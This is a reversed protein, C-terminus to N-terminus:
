LEQLTCIYKFTNQPFTFSTHNTALCTWVTLNIWVAATNASSCVSAPSWAVATSSFHKMIVYFFIQLKGFGCSATTKLLNGSTHASLREKQATFPQDRCVRTIQVTVTSSKEWCASVSLKTTMVSIDSQTICACICVCVCKSESPQWLLSASLYSMICVSVASSGRIIRSCSTRQSRWVLPSCGLEKDFVTRVRGSCHPIHENWCGFLASRRKDGQIHEILM